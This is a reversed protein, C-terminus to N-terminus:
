SNIWSTIRSKEYQSIKMKKEPNVDEKSHLNRQFIM